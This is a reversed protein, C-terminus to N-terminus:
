QEAEGEEDDHAKPRSGQPTVDILPGQYQEVKEAPRSGTDLIMVVPRRDDKLEVRQAQKQDTYPLLARRDEAMADLADRLTLQGGTAAGIRAVARGVLRKVEDRNELGAAQEFTAELVDRIVDRLQGDIRAREAEFAEVRRRAKAVEAAELSGAAKVEALTVMCGKALQLAATGGTRAEVWGVFDAPRKNRSGKPRGRPKAAPGGATLAFGETM